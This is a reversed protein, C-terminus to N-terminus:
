QVNLSSSKEIRVYNINLFIKIEQNLFKNEEKLKININMNM